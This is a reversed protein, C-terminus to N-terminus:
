RIKVSGPLLTDVTGLDVYAVKGFLFYRISSKAQQPARFLLGTSYHLLVACYKANLLNPALMGSM